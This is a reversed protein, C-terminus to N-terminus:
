AARKAAELQQREAIREANEALVFAMAGLEEPTCVPPAEGNLLAAFAHMAKAQIVARLSDDPGLGGLERLRAESAARAATQWESRM